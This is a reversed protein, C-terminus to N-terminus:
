CMQLKDNLPFNEATHTFNSASLQTGLFKFPTGYPVVKFKSTVSWNTWSPNATLPIIRTKDFNIKLGTAQQFQDLVLAFYELNQIDCKLLFISDDAVMSVKKELGMLEMGKIHSNCRVFSGLTAIMLIFLYPSLADGQAVGKHVEFPRSLHGNNAICLQVSAQTTHIWNMFYPPFGYNVLAKRM